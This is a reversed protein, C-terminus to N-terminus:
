ENLSGVKKPIASYMRLFLNDAVKEKGRLYVSMLKKADERAKEIIQSIKKGKSTKALKEYARTKVLYDLKKKALKGAYFIYKDHQDRNLKNGAIEKSPMGPFSMFGANGLEWIEKDIKDPAQRRLKWPLFQRIAGGELEVSDGWLNRRAPIEYSKGPTQSKIIEMIGEPKRVIAKGEHLAEESRVLSRQLSSYPMFSAATRDIINMLRQPNTEGQTIAQLTSNLGMLYSGDLINRAVGSGTQLIKESTPTEGSDIWNQLLVTVGGIVTNFPEVRRYSYWTDNLLISWPHYGAQYFAARKAANKPAPGTIRGAEYLQAVTAGIMLGEIQKAVVDTVEPGGKGKLTAKIAERGGKMGLGVGPTMEVGRKLLNAITNVFPVQLRGGPLENRLALVMKTAAGPADMFTAYNAYNAANEIMIDTPAKAYEMAKKTLREGKIGQQAAKRTALARIQGDFAISKAWVDMARLGRGFVSVFPAMMRMIEHPSREWAGMIQSIEIDWKTAGQELTYGKRVVEGAAKAGRRFGKAMGAWMPLIESLFYERQRGQLSAILPDTIAMMSRHVSANFMQWLTNSGTNVLHTPIGSLISNYWYEYVYDMIKPNEKTAKLYDSFELLPKPNGENFAKNAENFRQWEKNTLKRKLQAFASAVKNPAIVRKHINLTRAATSTGKSTALFIGDQFEKLLTEREPSESIKALREIANAEVQRLADIEQPNVGEGKTARKMLTQFQKQDGIIRRAEKETETWTQRSKPVQKALHVELEKASMSIAQRELNISGAYKPLKKKPYKPLNNLQQNIISEIKPGDAFKISEGNQIAKSAMREAVEPKGKKMAMNSLDVYQKVEDSVRKGLPLTTEVKTQAADREIKTYLQQAEQPKVGKKSFWDIFKTPGASFLGFLLSTIATDIVGVKLPKGKAAAETAGVLGGTVTGHIAAQLAPSSGRLIGYSQIAGQIPLTTMKVIPTIGAGYGIFESVKKFVKFGKPKEVEEEFESIEPEIAGFTAGKIFSETYEALSKTATTPQMMKQVAPAIPGVQQIPHSPRIGWHSSIEDKSFGAEQLITSKRSIYDSIEQESFGGKKLKEITSQGNM